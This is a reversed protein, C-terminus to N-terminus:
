SNGCSKIYRSVMLGSCGGPVKPIRFRSQWKCNTCGIPFTDMDAYSYMTVVVFAVVNVNLLLAKHGVSTFQEPAERKWVTTGLLRRGASWHM